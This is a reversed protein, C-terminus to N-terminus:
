ATQLVGGLMDLARKRTRMKSSLPNVDPYLQALEKLVRTKEVLAAENYGYPNPTEYRPVDEVHFTMSQIIAVSKRSHRAVNKHDNYTFLMGVKLALNSLWPLRHGRFSRCSARSGSHPAYSRDNLGCATGLGCGGPRM